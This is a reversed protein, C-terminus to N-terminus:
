FQSAHRRLGHCLRGRRVPGGERLLMGSAAGAHVQAHMCRALDPVTTPIASCIYLEPTEWSQLEASVPALCPDACHLGM